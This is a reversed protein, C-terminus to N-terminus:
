EYRLAQIPALRAAKGAPYIGFFLGVAVSFAFSLGIAKANIFTEWNGFKSLLMSGVIGAAIGAVGGLLSLCMSELVFQRLIDQPCAGLAKRLGIEKTRETVSVLMINMIGIGGVLLSVAAIGALLSTFTKSSEQSAKQMDSYNNIFFSDPDLKAGLARQLEDQAQVTMEGNLAQCYLMNVSRSPLIRRQHTSLPIIIRDDQDMPGMQGKSELVGIVKFKLGNIRIFENLPDADEFLDTVVTRGIVAVKESRALNDETFFEGYELKTSRADPWDPTTGVVSTTTNKVEYKVTASTSTEPAIRELSPCQELLGTWVENTLADASGRAGALRGAGMRGPMVTLLNSGLMQLNQEVRRRAGEGISITAIVAAVGIIVGLVTLASRLKNASLGSLAIGVCELLAM